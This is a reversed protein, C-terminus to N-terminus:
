FEEGEEDIDVDDDGGEVDQDDDEGELTGFTLLSFNATPFLISLVFSSTSLKM